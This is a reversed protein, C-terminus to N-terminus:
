EFWGGGMMRGGVVMENVFGVMWWGSRKGHEVNSDVVWVCRM